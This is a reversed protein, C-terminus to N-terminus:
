FLDSMLKGPLSEMSEGVASAAAAPNAVVYDFTQTLALPSWDVQRAEDAVDTWLDINVGVLYPLADEPGGSKLGDAGLRLSGEVTGGVDGRAASEGVSYADLAEGVQGFITKGSLLGLTSLVSGATFGFTPVAWAPANAAVGVGSGGSSASDAGAQSAQRQQDANQRLVVEAAGLASVAAAVSPSLRTNWTQRFRDAEQGHWPASHIHANLTVRHQSLLNAWTDIQAALRELADPDAGWTANM